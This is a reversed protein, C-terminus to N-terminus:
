HGFFHSLLINFRVTVQDSDLNVKMPGAFIPGGHPNFHYTEDGFGSHRYEVGVSVMDNVAWEGGGGGTWGIVTDDVKNLNSDSIAGLSSTTVGIPIFGSTGLGNFNETFFETRATDNQFVNVHTFAAGGTAYLLVHDKVWGLRARASATWDTDARRNIDVDTVAFDGKGFFNTQTGTFRVWRSTDTRNFDGELGILFHGFQRNYGVQGGGTFGGDTGADFFSGEPGTGPFFFTAFGIGGGNGNTLASTHAGAAPGFFEDAQQLVDVDEFFNSFEYSSWNGGLNGGIYFGTWSFPEVVPAPAMEKPGANSTSVVCLAMAGLMMAILFNTPKM